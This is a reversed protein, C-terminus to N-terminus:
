PYALFGGPTLTFSYPHSFNTPFRSNEIAPGIKTVESDLHVDEM